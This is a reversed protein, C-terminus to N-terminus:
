SIEEQTVWSLRANRGQFFYWQAWVLNWRWWRWGCSVHNSHPCYFQPYYWPIKSAAPMELNYGRQLQLVLVRIYRGVPIIEHAHIDLYKWELLSSMSTNTLDCFASFFNLKILIAMLAQSERCELEFGLKTRVRASQWWGWKLGIGQNAWHLAVSWHQM